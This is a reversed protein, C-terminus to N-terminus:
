IDQHFNQPISKHRKKNEKRREKRRKRRGEKRCPLKLLRIVKLSITHKDDM